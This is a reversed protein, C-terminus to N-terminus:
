GGPQGNVSTAHSITKNPDKLAFYTPLGPYWASMIMDGSTQLAVGIDPVRHWGGNSPNEEDHVIVQYNVAKRQLIAWAIGAVAAKATPHAALPLHALLFKQASANNEQDRYSQALDPLFAHSDGPKDVHVLNSWVFPCKEDDDFLIVNVIGYEVRPYPWPSLKVQAPEALIALILTLAACRENPNTKECDLTAALLLRDLVKEALRPHTVATAM